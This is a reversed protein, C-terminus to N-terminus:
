LAGGYGGSGGGGRLPLGPPVRLFPGSCQSVRLCVRGPYQCCLNEKQRLHRGLTGQLVLWM